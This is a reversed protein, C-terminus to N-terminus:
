GTSRPDGTYTPKYDPHDESLSRLGFPTLLRESVVNMVSQWRSRELIPFPLSISLVQNPRCAADDGDHGDVVDYLYGGESYWFRDNFSAYARDVHDALHAAAQSRRHLRKEPM